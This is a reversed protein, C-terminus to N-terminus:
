LAKVKQPWDKWFQEAIHGYLRRRRERSGRSHMAVYGTQAVARESAVVQAISTEKKEEPYHSTETGRTQEGARAPAGSDSGAPQGM